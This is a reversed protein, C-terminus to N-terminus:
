TEKKNEKTQNKDSLEEKILTNIKGSHFEDIPYHPRTPLKQFEELDIGQTPEFFSITPKAEIKAYMSDLQEKLENLSDDLIKKFNNLKQLDDREAM